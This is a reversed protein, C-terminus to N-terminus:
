LNITGDEKKRKKRALVLLTVLVVIDAVVLAAATVIVSLSGEPNYYDPAYVYADDYLTAVVTGDDEVTVGSIYPNVAFYSLYKEGQWMVTEYEYVASVDDELIEVFIDELSWEDEEARYVYTYTFYVGEEEESEMTENQAAFIITEDGLKIEVEGFVDADEDFPRETDADLDYYEQAYAVFREPDSFSVIGYGVYIPLFVYVLACVCVLVLATGTSIKAGQRFYPPTKERSTGFARSSIGERKIGAKRWETAAVVIAFVGACIGCGVCIFSGGVGYVPADWLMHLAISLLCVCIFNVIRKADKRLRAYAWTILGTWLIHTCFTSIGRGVFLEVIDSGSIVLTNSSYVFIYGMDEIVSFGAGVAAGVLFALYPNRKKVALFILIAIVAKSFEEVCGVEFSDLWGEPDPIVYYFAMALIISFIGGIVIIGLLKALSFDKGPYIEYLLLMFPLTFCIGGLAVATPYLLVNGFGYMAVLVLTFLAFLLVFFRLYMWPYVDNTGKKSKVGRTFVEEYERKGHCRFTEAFFRKM